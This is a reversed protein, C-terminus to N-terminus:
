VGILDSFRICLLQNVQDASFESSDSSDSSDSAADVRGTWGAFETSGAFGTSGTSVSVPADLEREDPFAFELFALRADRAIPHDASM